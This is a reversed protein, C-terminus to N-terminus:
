LSMRWIHHRLPLRTRFHRQSPTRTAICDSDVVSIINWHGIVLRVYGSKIDWHRCLGLMCWLSPGLSVVSHSCVLSIVDSHCVPGFIGWVHHELPAVCHSCVRSMIDLHRFVSRVYVGSMIDSCVGSVMDLHCCLLLRGLVHHGLPPVRHSCVM